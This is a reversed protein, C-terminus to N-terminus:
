QDSAEGEKAGTTKARWAGLPLLNAREAGSIRFGWTTPFFSSSTSSRRVPPLRL